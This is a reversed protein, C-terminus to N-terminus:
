DAGKSEEELAQMLEAVSYKLWWGPARTKVKGLSDMLPRRCPDDADGPSCSLLETGDNPCTGPSPQAQLCKPCLHISEGTGNSM